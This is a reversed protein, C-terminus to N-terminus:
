MQSLYFSIAKIFKEKYKPVPKSADGVCNCSFRSVYERELNKLFKSTFNIQKPYRIRTTIKLTSPISKEMVGDKHQQQLL